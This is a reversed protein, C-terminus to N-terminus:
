IRFVRRANATTYSAVEDASEGRVECLAAIVEVLFAPENPRPRLASPTQYPADTEALLRERPVVEAARRTKKARPNAVSGAFSIDLGMEVYDRVLEASGSYSHVVGGAAFPAEERLVEVARAHADLIHLIIPLAHRRALALQAHFLREQRALSARRDGVGDLGIEGLAVPAVASVEGAGALTRGLADLARDCAADDLEAILQPHVGYAVFVDAHARALAAQAPWEDPAVGALVFGRVGAARARELQAPADAVIQLHCHSDLVCAAYLARM